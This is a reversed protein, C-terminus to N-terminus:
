AIGQAREMAADAEQYDIPVQGFTSRPDHSRAHPRFVGCPHQWAQRNSSWHFGEFRLWALVGREPKNPFEVWVWSGVIRAHPQIAPNSACVAVVEETSRRRRAAWAQREELSHKAMPEGGVFVLM